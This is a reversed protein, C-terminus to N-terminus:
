KILKIFYSRIMQKFQASSNFNDGIHRCQEGMITYSKTLWNNYTVQHIINGANNRLTNIHKQSSQKVHHMNKTPNNYNEFWNPIYRSRILQLQGCTWLDYVFKGFRRYISVRLKYMLFVVIPLNPFILECCTDQIWMLSVCEYFFFCRILPVPQAHLIYISRRCCQTYKACVSVYASCTTINRLPM